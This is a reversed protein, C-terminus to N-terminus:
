TMELDFVPCKRENAMLKNRFSEAQPSEWVDRLFNETNQIKIPNHGPEEDCFSCPFVEGNVNIYLSFCYSECPECIMELLKKDPNDQIVKLFSPASCSDFGIPVDMTMARTILNKYMDLNRLQTTRNRSGKPKMLLFVIANLRELEEEIRVQNILNICENYTEMCLVKHINVQKLGARGLRDVSSFCDSDNYHSVAVAGCITSLRSVHEDSIDKGNVTINPVVENHPNDRCYEMIKWLDPNADISGIGFAVQTLNKPIRQFIDKFTNLSMNKGKSTNSKYCNHVLLSNAFYSHDPTTGINYVQGSYDERTINRIKM